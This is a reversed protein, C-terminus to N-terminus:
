AAQKKSRGEPKADGPRWDIQRGSCRGDSPLCDFERMCSGRSHSQGACPLQKGVIRMDASEGPQRDVAVAQQNQGVFSHHDPQGLRPLRAFRDEARKWRNGAIRSGLDAAIRFSQHAIGISEAPPHSEFLPV